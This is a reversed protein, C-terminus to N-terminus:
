RGVSQGTKVGNESEEAQGDLYGELDKIGQFSGIEYFRQRVEFGTLQGEALKQQYLVALDFPEGDPVADFARKEFVGLGYDIYKMRTKNTKSYNIIQGEAFEVNSVDGLDHNEFVTMLAQKSSALFHEGAARYDCPLYSDGYLVFFRDALRPLAQKLAGATGLLKPGDESYSLKVGFDHQAAFERIMESKYGVCMVAETIGARKLLRLQHALFPEGNVEVLSKPIKETVPRLRTALGGALIAVPFM